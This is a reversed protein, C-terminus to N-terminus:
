ANAVFRLNFSGNMSPKKVKRKDIQPFMSAYNESKNSVAANSLKLRQRKSSKVMSKCAKVFTM